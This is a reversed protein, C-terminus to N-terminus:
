HLQAFDAFGTSDDLLGVAVFGQLHAVTEFTRLIVGSELSTHPMGPPPYTADGHVDLEDTMALITTVDLPKGDRAEIVIPHLQENNADVYGKLIVTRDGDREKFALNGNGEKALLDAHSPFPLVVTEGPEVTIRVVSEDPQFVVEIVKASSPKAADSM